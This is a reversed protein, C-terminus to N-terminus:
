RRSELRDNQVSLRFSLVFRIACEMFRFYKQGNISLVFSYSVIFM